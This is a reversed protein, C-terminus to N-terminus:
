IWNSEPNINAPVATGRWKTTQYTGIKVKEAVVDVDILGNFKGKAALFALRLITEERDLCDTVQFPASARRILRTEKSQIKLYISINKAREMNEAYDALAPAVKEEYCQWCYVGYTLEQPIQPLFLFETDEVFKVCKKCLETQCAGCTFSPRAKQCSHCLSSKM